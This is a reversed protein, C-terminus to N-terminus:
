DAPPEDPPEEGNVREVRVLARHREGRRPPRAPGEVEDGDSLECRRIQSASIYVDDPDAEPGKLRLFGHGARVVELVGTVDETEADGEEAGDGEGNQRRAETEEQTGRRRRRRRPPKEYEEGGDGDAEDEGRKLLEDILESRGLMRYRSVGAEAALSHLEALHKSELEDKTM